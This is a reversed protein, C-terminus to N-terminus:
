RCACRAPHARASTSFGKVEAVADDVPGMPLALSVDPLLTRGEDDVFLASPWPGKRSEADLVPTPAESVTFPALGAIDERALGAAVAVAAAATFAPRLADLADAVRRKETCGGPLSEILGARVDDDADDEDSRLVWRLSPSPEVPLADSLLGDDGGEVVLVYGAGPVLTRWYRSRETM